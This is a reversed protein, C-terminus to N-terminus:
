HPLCIDFCLDSLRDPHYCEGEKFLKQRDIDCHGRMSIQVMFRWTGLEFYYKTWEYHFQIQTCKLM